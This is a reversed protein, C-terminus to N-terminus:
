RTQIAPQRNLHFCSIPDEEFHFRLTDYSFGNMQKILLVKFVQEATMLGDRGAEPDDLGRVLDAYVLDLVQPCECILMRIQFLEKAHEHDIGPEVIKLQKNIRIRM